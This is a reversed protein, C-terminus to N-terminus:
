SRTRRTSPSSRQTQEVICTADITWNGSPADVTYTDSWSGDPDVRSADGWGGGPGISVFVEAYVTGNIPSGDPLTSPCPDISSVALPGGTTAGAPSKWTLGSPPPPCVTGGFRGVSGKVLQGTEGAGLGGFTGAYEKVPATSWTGKFKLGADTGGTWKLKVTTGGGSWTGSDGSAQFSFTGNSSFTGVECSKPNVEITWESGNNIHAAAPVAGLAGSTGFLGITGAVIVLGATAMAARRM